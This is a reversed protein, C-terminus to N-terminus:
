PLLGEREYYRVTDIAVWCRKALEGMKMTAIMRIPM